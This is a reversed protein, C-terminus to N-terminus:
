VALRHRTLYSKQLELEKIERRAERPNPRRGTRIEENIEDVRRNIRAIEDDVRWRERKAFERATLWLEIRKDFLLALLAAFITWFYVVSQAESISTTWLGIYIGIFFVWGIKRMIPYSVGLSHIFYFFIIFPLVSTLIIALIEYQMLMAELWEYDIFRMGILPIIIAVVWRVGKQEEFLPVRKLIVYIVSLLLIFILFREFLLYGSWGGYGGFLAQLIPEGVNVYTDIVSQAVSRADPFYYASVFGPVAAFILAALVGFLYIKKM